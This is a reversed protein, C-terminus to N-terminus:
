LMLGLLAERIQTRWKALYAFHAQVSQLETWVTGDGSAIRQDYNPLQAELAAWLAEIEQSLNELAERLRMEEPALLARGLASAAAQKRKLFSAAQQLLPGVKAFLDMLAHDLPISRWPTESEIELLHKLRTVPSKLVELAANLEAALGENGGAQDPHASRTAALYAAQLTEENLDAGPTLKLLHFFSATAAM